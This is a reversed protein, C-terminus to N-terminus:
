KQNGFVKLIERLVQESYNEISKPGQFKFVKESSGPSVEFDEDDWIYVWLSREPLFDLSNEDEPRWMLTVEGKITPPYSPTPMVGREELKELLRFTIDLLFGRNRRSM